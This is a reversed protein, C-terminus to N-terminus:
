LKSVKGLLPWAGLTQSSGGMRSPSSGCGGQNGWLLSMTGPVLAFCMGTIWCVGVSVAFHLLHERWPWAAGCGLYSVVQSLGFEVSPSHPRDFFVGQGECGEGAEMGEWNEELFQSNM